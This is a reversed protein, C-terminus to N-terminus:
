TSLLLFTSKRKVVYQLTFKEAVPTCSKGSSFQLNTGEQDLDPPGMALEFPHVRPIHIHPGIKQDCETKLVGRRKEALTSVYKKTCDEPFPLNRLGGFGEAASAPLNRLSRM